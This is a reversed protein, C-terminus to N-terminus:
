YEDDELLFVWTVLGVVGGKEHAYGYGSQLQKVASETQRGFIGDVSVKSGYGDAILQNQVARIAYGRSNRKVPIVLVKWTQNGVIGDALLGHSRQFNVVARKTQNGFVGDTNVKFGRARLLYQMTRVYENRNGPRCKVVATKFTAPAAEVPSEMAWGGSFFLLFLVCLSNRCCGRTIINFM